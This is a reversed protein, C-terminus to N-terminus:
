RVRKSPQGPLIMAGGSARCDDAFSLRADGDIEEVVPFPGVNPEKAAKKTTEDIQRVYDGVSQGQVTCFWQVPPQGKQPPTNHNDFWYDLIREADERDQWGTAREIKVWGAGDYADKPRYGDYYFARGLRIVFM